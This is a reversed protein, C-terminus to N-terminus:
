KYKVILLPFVCQGFPFLDVMKKGIQCKYIAQHDKMDMYTASMCLVSTFSLNSHYPLLWNISLSTTYKLFFQLTHKHPIIDSCLTASVYFGNVIIFLPLIYLFLCIFKPLICFKPSTVIKPNFQPKTQAITFGPLFSFTELFYRPTKFLWTQFLARENRRMRSEDFLIYSRSKRRSRRTLM